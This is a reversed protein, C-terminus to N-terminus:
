RPRAHAEQFTVEVSHPKGDRLVTVTSSQGPHVSNLVFM